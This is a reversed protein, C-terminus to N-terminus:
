SKLTEPTDEFRLSQPHAVGQYCRFCLPGNPMEKYGKSSFRGCRTCGTLEKELHGSAVLAARVPAPLQAMRDRSSARSAWGPRFGPPPALRHSRLFERQQEALIESATRERPTTIPAAILSEIIGQCWASVDLSIRAAIRPLEELRTELKAQDQFDISFSNALFERRPGSWNDLAAEHLRQERKAPDQTGYVKFFKLPKM